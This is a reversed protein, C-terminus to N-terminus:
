KELVIKNVFYKCISEHKSIMYLLLINLVTLEFVFYFWPLNVFISIFLVIIRTNFSLINTYKMLPKSQQRFQNRLWDPIDDGYRMKMQQRLMQMSPSVREQGQTYNIYFLMVLKKWFHGKWSLTKNTEKLKAVEDLESGNKGKVMYLHFNRYYDAMAAQRVHFVGAIAALFFISADWGQQMMRVCVAIYITIFWLDGSLGDLIRGIRSYNGTMRALQGDASDLSNALVILAMGVVNYMLDVYGLLIGGAVGIFISIVTVVNPVIGFKQCLLAWRYGIPRYFLLDLTEETDMSKLTSELTPKKVNKEM